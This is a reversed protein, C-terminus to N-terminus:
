GRSRLCRADDEASENNFIFKNFEYYKGDEYYEFYSLMSVDIFNRRTSKWGNLDSGM